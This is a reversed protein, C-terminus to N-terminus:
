MHHRTARRRISFYRATRIKKRREKKKEKKREKWRSIVITRRVNFRTELILLIRSFVYYLFDFIERIFVLTVIYGEREGGVEWLLGPFRIQMGRIIVFGGLLSSVTVDVWNRWFRDKRFNLGFWGRLGGKKKREEWGTCSGFGMKKKAWRAISNFGLIGLHFFFCFYHSHYLIGLMMM